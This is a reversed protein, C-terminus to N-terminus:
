LHLGWVGFFALLFLVVVVLVVTGLGDGRRKAGGRLFGRVKGTSQRREIQRETDTTM